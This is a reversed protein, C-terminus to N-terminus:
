RRRGLRAFAATLLATAVGLGIVGALVLLPSGVLGPGAGESRPDGGLLVAVPSAVPEAAMTLTATALVLGVSLALRLLSAARPRV